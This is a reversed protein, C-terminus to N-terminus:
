GWKSWIAVGPRAQTMHGCISESPDYPWVQGQKPWIAVGPGTPDYPWVQGRKPWIALGPSTQSMHGCRSENPVQSGVQGREPWFAMRLRHEGNYLHTVNFIGDNKKCYWFSYNFVNLDRVRWKRNYTTFFFVLKSPISFRHLWFNCKWLYFIIFNSMDSM